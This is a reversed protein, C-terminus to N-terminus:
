INYFLYLVVYSSLASEIKFSVIQLLSVENGHVISKQIKIKEEISTTVDIALIDWQNRFRQNSLFGFLTKKSVPFWVSTAACLVIRTHEGVNNKRIMVRMNHRESDLDIRKWGSEPSATIGLYYNITM